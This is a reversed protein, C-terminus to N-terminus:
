ARCGVKGHIIKVVNEMVRTATAQDLCRMVVKMHHVDTAKATEKLLDQPIKTVAICLLCFLCVFLPEAFMKAPSVKSLRSSSVGSATKKSTSRSSNRWNKRPYKLTSRPINSPASMPSAPPRGIDRQSTISSPTVAAAAGLMQRLSTLGPVMPRHVINREEYYQDVKQLAITARALNDM